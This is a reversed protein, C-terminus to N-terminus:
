DDDDTVRVVRDSVFYLPRRTVETYIRYLYEGMVGITLYLVGFMLLLTVMIGTWGPAVNGSLRSIIVYLLVPITLLFFSVGLWTILRGPVNSFGIFANYMSKMMQGFTWSSKGAVRKRRAYEVTDQQFGTYAVLAFAIRNHEEFRRYCDAVQRDILFFSGTVFQSGAPMAYRRILRSFLNSTMVRWGADERSARKGWVIDAGDRWRRIFELVTEPPDQLDAALTVVADGTADHIGASLAVHSGFNRSLRVGRFRPDEAAFSRIKAWSDDSSGDDVLVIEVDIDEAALLTDTVAKRYADLSETENFVPTVVSVCRRGGREPRQSQLEDSM